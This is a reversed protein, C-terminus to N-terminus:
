RKGEFNFTITGIQSAKKSGDFRAKKAYELAHEKLCENNSTSAANIYTDTVKGNANVTISVVIKGNAECLYIPIPLYEETRGKLSYNITSNTNASAQGSATEKKISRKNLISNVSNFSTLEENQISSNANNKSATNIKSPTEQHAKLRPNEYDKPPAIPKYAQAFHKYNETKNFAKNTKESNEQQQPKELEEEKPLEINQIDVFVEKMDTNLKFASFNFMSLVLSSTILLTIALAKHSNNFEM